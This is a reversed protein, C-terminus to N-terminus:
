GEREMLRPGAETGVVVTTALDLFLGTEVVGVRARLIDEVARPDAMGDPFRCIAMTNGDDTVVPSGDQQRLLEARGGLTNLWRLQAEYGFPVLDLSPMKRPSYHIGRTEKRMVASDIVLKAVLAMNRLEVLDANIIFDWYYQTIEKRLLEIRSKARTLRKNTRVIGVYNWMLRRIEDRNHTVVIMEDSNM